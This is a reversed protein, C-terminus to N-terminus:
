IDGEEVIIKPNFNNEKLRNVMDQVEELRVKYSNELHEFKGNVKTEIHFLNSTLEHVIRYKM